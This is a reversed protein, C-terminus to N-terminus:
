VVPEEFDIEEKDGDSEWQSSAKEVVVSIGPKGVTVNYIYKMGGEFTADGSKPTYTYEKGGAEIKILIKNEIQQPVLLAQCSLLYDGANQIFQPTIVKTDTQMATLLGGRSVTASLLANQITIVANQLDEENTGDGQLNVIIKATAHKFQLIKNGQLAVETSAYLLDSQQLAGEVSQDQEVSWEAYEANDTTAPCWAYVTQPELASAWYLPNAADQLQLTGNADIVKYTVTKTADSVSILEGGNWVNDATARSQPPLLQASLEMPIGTGVNSIFENNENSCSSLLAVSALCLFCKTTKRM